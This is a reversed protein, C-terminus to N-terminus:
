RRGPDRLSGLIKGCLLDSLEFFRPAWHASAASLKLFKSCRLRRLNVHLAQIDRATRVEPGFHGFYRMKHQFLMCSHHLHLAPSSSDELSAHFIASAGLFLSRKLSRLPRSPGKGERSPLLHAEMRNGRQKCFPTPQNQCFHKSKSQSHNLYSTTKTMNSHQDTGHIPTTSKGALVLAEDNM